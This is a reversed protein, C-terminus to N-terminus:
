RPSQASNTASNTAPSPTKLQSKLQSIRQLADPTPNINSEPEWTEKPSVNGSRITNHLFEDCVFVIDVNANDICHGFGFQCLTLRLRVLPNIVSM